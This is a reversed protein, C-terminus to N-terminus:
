GKTIVVRGGASEIMRRAEASIGQTEVILAKDLLSGNRALVKMQKTNAPLLGKRKLIALSVTDGDEFHEVLTDINIYEMKGYFSEKVPMPIMAPVVTPVPVPEPEPEPEPEPIVVPEPEPIPVMRERKIVSLILLALAAALVIAALLLGINKAMGSPVLGGNASIETNASAGIEFSVSLGINLESNGLSTDFADSDGEYPWMWQFVYEASESRELMGKHSVGNLEELTAWESASGLIYNDDPDIIRVLLPLEYASTFVLRPEFFYDLAFRDANRVRITYSVDTGPAIVKEGNNGKVTIDGQENEYYISFVDINESMNTKLAVARSDAQAYEVIQISLVVISALLLIVILAIAVWFCKRVKLLFTEQRSAHTREAMYTNKSM